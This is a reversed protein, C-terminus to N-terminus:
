CLAQLWAHYAYITFPIFQQYFELMVGFRSKM